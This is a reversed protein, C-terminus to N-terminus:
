ISEKFQEIFKQLNIGNKSAVCYEAGSYRLYLEKNLFECAKEVVHKVGDNFANDYLEETSESETMTKSRNKMYDTVVDTTFTFNFHTQGQGCLFDIKWHNYQYITNGDKTEGIITGNDSIFDGIYYFLDNPPFYGKTFHRQRYADSDYKAIIKRMLEDQKDIPMSKVRAAFREKVREERELKMEHEKIAQQGEPSNFWREFRKSLEEEM